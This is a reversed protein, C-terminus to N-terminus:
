YVAMYKETMENKKTRTWLQRNRFKPLLKGKSKSLNEFNAGNKVFYFKWKKDEKKCIGIVGERQEYFTM